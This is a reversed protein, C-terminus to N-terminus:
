FPVVHNNSREMYPFDYYFDILINAIALVEYDIHKCLDM